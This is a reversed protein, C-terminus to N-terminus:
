IRCGTFNSNTILRLVALASPMSIGDGSNARASSTMSHSPAVEQQIGPGSRHCGWSRPSLCWTLEAPNCEHMARNGGVLQDFAAARPDAPNSLEKPLQAPEAIELAHAAIQHYLPIRALPMRLAVRIQRAPDYVVARFHNHGDRRKDRRELRCGM